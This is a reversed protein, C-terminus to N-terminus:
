TGFSKMANKALYNEQNKDLQRNQEKELILHWVQVASIAM